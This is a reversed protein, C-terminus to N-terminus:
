AATDIITGVNETVRHDFFQDAPVWTSGATNAAANGNFDYWFGTGKSKIRVYKTKANLATFAVGIDKIQTTLWQTPIQMTTDFAQYEELICENAM